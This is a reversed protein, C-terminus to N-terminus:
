IASIFTDPFHCMSYMCAPDAHPPTFRAQFFGSPLNSLPTELPAQPVLAVLRLEQDERPWGWAM